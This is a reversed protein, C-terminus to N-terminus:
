KKEREGEDLLSTRALAARKGDHCGGLGIAAWPDGMQLSVASQVTSQSTAPQSRVGAPKSLVM